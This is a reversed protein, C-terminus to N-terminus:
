RGPSQERPEQQSQRDDGNGVCSRGSDEVKQLDKTVVVVVDLNDLCVVAAV